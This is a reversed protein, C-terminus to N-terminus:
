DLFQGGKIFGMVKNVFARWSDRDQGLLIWDTGEWRVEQLVM